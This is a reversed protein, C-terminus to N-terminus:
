QGVIETEPVQLLHHCLAADRDVVRGNVSPNDPVRGFKQLAEICTLSGDAPFPVHVLCVDLDSTAPHVKVPRDVAVTVCNLEPEAFSSVENSGLTKQAIRQLPM